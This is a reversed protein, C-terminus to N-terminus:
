DAPEFLQAHRVLAMQGAKPRGRLWELVMKALAQAPAVALSRPDGHTLELLAATAIASSVTLDLAGARMRTLLRSARVQKAVDHAANAVEARILAVAREDHLLADPPLSAVQELGRRMAEHWPSFLGDRRIATIDQISLDDLRPLNLKLLAPFFQLDVVGASRRLEIGTREIAIQLTRESRASPLYMDVDVTSGALMAAGVLGGLDMIRRQRYVPVASSPSWLVRDSAEDQIQIYDDTTLPGLPDTEDDWDPEGHSHIAKLILSGANEPILRAPIIVVVGADVLKEVAALANLAGAIKELYRRNTSYHGVHIGHPQLNVRSRELGEDMRPIDLPNGLAVSHAYLLHRGISAALRQGGANPSQAESWAWALPGFDSRVSALPSAGPLPMALPRVQGPLLQPVQASREWERVGDALRTITVPARSLKSIDCAGLKEVELAARAVEVITEAPHSQSM